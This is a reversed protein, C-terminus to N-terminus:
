KSEMFPIPNQAQQRHNEDEYYFVKTQLSRGYANKPLMGNVAKRLPETPKKEILAGYTTEKLGGPYGSHSYYKKQDKKKGTVIIKSANVVVVYQQNFVGPTYTAKNKGLVMSAIDTAAAGLVKNTADYLVWSEKLDNQKPYFSKLQKNKM